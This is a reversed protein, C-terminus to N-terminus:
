TKSLASGSTRSCHGSALTTMAPVPGCSSSNCRWAAMWSQILMYDKGTIDIIIRAVLEIVPGRSSDEGAKVLRKADDGSAMAASQHNHTIHAPEPLGHFMTFISELCNGAVRKAPGAFRSM